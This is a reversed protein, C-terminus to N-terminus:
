RDKVMHHHPNNNQIKKLVERMGSDPKIIGLRVPDGIPPSHCIRIICNQVGCQPCPQAIPIDINTMSQMEEWKHECNNCEYDYFPM